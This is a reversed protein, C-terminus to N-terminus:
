AKGWPQPVGYRKFIKDIKHYAEVDLPKQGDAYANFLQRCTAGLGLVQWIENRVAEKHRVKTDNLGKRFAKEM